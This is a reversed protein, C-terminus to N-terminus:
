SYRAILKGLKQPIHQEVVGGHYCVVRAVNLTQLKKVSAVAQDLDLTFPPNAIEFEGNEVVVADCAILTRSEKLYLSIHGPMHGPTNIIQVGPWYAPAEDETFTVDVAVPQVTKLLEQFYLAGPKHEEPLSPFMAEAQQLRVSKMRGAIYPEDAEPAYVRIAPYKEKLEPLGGVHDIDHHSIIVGTLDALSLGQQGAAEELLSMFGAYGCDVLLTDGYGRLIVPHLIDQNGNVNFKVDLVHLQM